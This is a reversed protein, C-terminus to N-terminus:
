YIVASRLGEKVHFEKRLYPAPKYEKPNIEKEPEIWYCKWDSKELLGMTFEAVASLAKERHGNEDICEAEVQWDVQQSSRLSEGEYRIRQSERSYVTQSDWLQIGSRIDWVTIRYSMQVVGRSDSVIKWSFRPSLNDIGYPNKRYETKLDVIKLM